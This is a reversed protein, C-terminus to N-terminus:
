MLTIEENKEGLGIKMDLTYVWRKNMLALFPITFSTIKRVYGIFRCDMLLQKRTLKRLLKFFELEDKVSASFAIYAKPENALPYAYLFFPLLSMLRLSYLLSRLSQARLLYLKISPDPPMFKLRYRYRVLKVHKNYHYFAISFKLGIKESIRRINILSNKELEKIILVDIEDITGKVENSKDAIKMGIEPIESVHKKRSINKQVRPWNVYLRRQKVYVIHPSPFWYVPNLAPSIEVLDNEGRIFTIYKELYRYPFVCFLLTYEKTAGEVLTQVVTYPLQPRAQKEAILIVTPTLGLVDYKPCFKLINEEKLPKIRNYLTSRPVKMKEALKKIKLEGLCLEHLIFPTQEELRM